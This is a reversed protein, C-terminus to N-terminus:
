AEADRGRTRPCSGESVRSREVVRRETIDLSRRLEEVAAYAEISAEALQDQSEAEAESPLRPGAELFGRFSTSPWCRGSSGLPTWSLWRGSVGSKWGEWSSLLCSGPTGPPSCSTGCGAWRSTTTLLRRM